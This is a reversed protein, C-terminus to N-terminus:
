SKCSTGVLTSDNSFNLFDLIVNSAQPANSMDEHKINTLKVIQEPIEKETHLLSYFTQNKHITSGTM